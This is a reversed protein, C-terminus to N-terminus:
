YVHLSFMIIERKRHMFLTKWLKVSLELVVLVDHRQVERQHTEPQSAIQFWNSVFIDTSNLLIFYFLIFELEHFLIFFLFYFVYFLFRWNIFFFVYL